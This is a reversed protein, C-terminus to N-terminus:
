QLQEAKKKKEKEGDSFEMKCKIAMDLFADEVGNYDPKGEHIIKRIMGPSLDKENALIDAWDKPIYKKAKKITDQTIM